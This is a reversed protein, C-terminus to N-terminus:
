AALLAGECGAGCVPELGADLDTAHQRRRAIDTDARVFVATAGYRRAERWRCFAGIDGDVGGQDGVRIVRWGRGDPAAFLVLGPVKVWDQDVGIREFRYSDGSRGCFNVAEIMNGSREPAKKYERKTRKCAPLWSIKRPPRRFASLSNCTEPYITMAAHARSPRASVAGHRHARADSGRRVAAWGRRGRAVGQIWGAFMQCQVDHGCGMEGAARLGEGVAQFLGLSQDFLAAPAQRGQAALHQGQQQFGVAGGLSVVQQFLHADLDRGLRGRDIAREIEQQLHAEGVADFAEVGEDGAAVPIVAVGGDEQDALIATRGALKMGAVAEAFEGLLDLRHVELHAAGHDLDAAEAFFACGLHGLGVLGRDEEAEGDVAGNRARGVTKLALIADHDIRAFGGALRHHKVHGNADGGVGLPFEAHQSVEHAGLALRPAEEIDGAAVLCAVGTCSPPRRALISKGSMVGWSAVSAAFPPRTMSAPMAPAALSPPGVAAVTFSTGPHFTAAAFDPVLHDFDIAAAGVGPFAVLHPVHIHAEVDRLHHFPRASNAWWAPRRWTKRGRALEVSAGRSWCM